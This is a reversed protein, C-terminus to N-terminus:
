WTVFPWLCNRHPGCKPWGQDLHDLGKFFFTDYGPAFFDKVVSTNRSLFISFMILEKTRRRLYHHETVPHNSLALLLPHNGSFDSRLDWLCIAAHCAHCLDYYVVHTFGSKLSQESGCVFQKLYLLVIHIQMILDNFSLYSEIISPMTIFHRPCRGLISKICRM